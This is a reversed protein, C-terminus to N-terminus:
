IFDPGKLICVHFITLIFHLEYRTIFIPPYLSLTEWWSRRGGRRWPWCRWGPAARLRPASVPEHRSTSPRIPSTPSESPPQPPQPPPQPSRRSPNRMKLRETRRIITDNILIIIMLKLLISILHNDGHKNGKLWNNNKTKEIIILILIVIIMIQNNEVIKKSIVKILFTVDNGM